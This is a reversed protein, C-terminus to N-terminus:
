RSSIDLVLEGDQLIRNLPFEAKSSLRGYGLVLNTKARTIAVLMMSRKENSEDFFGSDLNPIFVSDFELGTMVNHAIVKIGPEFDFHNNFYGRGMSLYKQVLDDDPCAQKIARYIDDRDQWNDVLVGIIETPHDSAYDVVEDAFEEKSSFRKVIPKVGGTNIAEEPMDGEDRFLMSLNLIAQSNRHNRQLFMRRGSASCVVNVVEDPDAGTNFVAQNKDMFLTMNESIEKLLEILEIPVIQAEDVLVHDYHLSGEDFLKILDPRVKTWDHKWKKGSLKPPNRKGKVKEKYITSLWSHYTTVDNEDLGVEQMHQCLYQYLPRNFVIFLVKPEEGTDEVHEQVIKKARLLALMTKGSGPGGTVVYNKNISLNNVHVQDRSLEEFELINSAM